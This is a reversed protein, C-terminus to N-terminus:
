DCYNVGPQQEGESTLFHKQLSLSTLPRCSDEILTHPIVFAIQCSLGFDLARCAVRLSCDLLIHRERAEALDDSKAQQQEREQTGIMAATSSASASLSLLASCDYTMDNCRHQKKISSQM